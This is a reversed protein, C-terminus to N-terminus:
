PPNGKAAGASQAASKLLNKDRGVHPDHCQVCSQTGLNAHGKGAAIGKQDHCDYCLSVVDKKLLANNDSAHPNHCGTCDDVVDHTFKAKELFNDHCEWCLNEGTKSLLNKDAGAHPKHCALCDGDGVPQHVDKKKGVVDDHCDYCTDKVSKKLLGKFHTAHPAHCDTCDGAEVAQHKFKGEALPDDHCTLCLANGKKILLNKYPSPHPDHCSLCEGDEVPQHKVKNGALFDKHCTFCLQPVPVRPQATMMDGGGHCEACKNEAYPRHMLNEPPKPFRPKPVVAAARSTGTAVQAVPRNTVSTEPPVGDFFFALWEHRNTSSCGTALLVGCFVAALAPIFRRSFKVGNKERRV